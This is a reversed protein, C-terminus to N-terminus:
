ASFGQRVYLSTSTSTSTGVCVVGYQNSRLRQSIAREEGRDKKIRRVRGLWSKGGGVQHPAGGGMGIGRGSNQYRGLHRQRCRAREFTGIEVHNTFVNGGCQWSMKDGKGVTCPLILVEISMNFHYGLVATLM